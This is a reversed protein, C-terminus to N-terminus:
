KAALVLFVLEPTKRRHIARAVEARLYGSVAAVRAAVYPEVGKGCPVLTVDLRGPDNGPSVSAVELGLAAPLALHLTQQVQRCLAALKRPKVRKGSRTQKRLLEPDVGDDPHIEGVLSRLHQELPGSM